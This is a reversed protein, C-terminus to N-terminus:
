AASLLVPRRFYIVRETEEFGAARHFAHSADNDLLADSAFEAVGREQAWLLGAEILARGLGRRRQNPVVYIGELFAVPSGTCGNVHDRRLSVEAFGAPAGDGDRAILVLHTPAPGTMEPTRGKLEEIGSDPWLTRRLVAIADLDAPAARVIEM